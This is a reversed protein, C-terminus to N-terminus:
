VLIDLYFGKPMVDRRPVERDMSLLEALRKLAEEINTPDFRGRKKLTAFPREEENVGDRAPSRLPLVGGSPSASSPITPEGSVM